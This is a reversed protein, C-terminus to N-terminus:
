IISAELSENAKKVFVERPKGSCGEIADREVISRGDLPALAINFAANADAHDAHGCGRCMFVKGRRAGDSVEGCRSCAKSTYAPNIAHFPVGLLRAKYEIKTLLDYYPWSNLAYRFSRRATARKRLHILNEVKIGAKHAKADVVIKKSIKHNLDNVKRAQRKAVKQAAKVSRRQHRARLRRYKEQTHGCSRGLKTVKGTIPDAMVACHGTANLDVGVWHTPSYQTASPMTVSVHAYEKTFIIANLKVFSPIFSLDLDLKLPTVRVIKTDANFQIDAPNIGFVPNRVAKIKRNRGYHRLVWKSLASKMGIHKVDATSVNGHTIAYEAIAKAKEFQDSLDKGHKVKYTLLTPM